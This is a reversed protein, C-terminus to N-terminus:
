FRLSLGGGICWVKKKLDVHPYVGDIVNGIFLYEQYSLGDGSLNLREFGGVIYPEIIQGGIKITASASAGAGWRNGKMSSSFGRITYVPPGAPYLSFDNNQTVQGYFANLGGNLTVASSVTKECAAKFSIRNETIKPYGSHEYRYWYIPYPIERYMFAFDTSNKFYTYYLGGAIKTGAYPTYDAGGGATFAMSKEQSSHKIYRFDWGGTGQGEAKRNVKKYDYKVLIPLSLSNNIPLRVWVDAGITHGNIEGDNDVGYYTSAAHYYNNKTSFPIGGRATFSTKASGIMTELSAKMSAEYYESDYPVGLHLLDYGGDSWGTLANTYIDIFTQNKEKKYDIKFEVGLKLNTSAPIGYLIRLAVDDLKNKQDFLLPPFMHSNGGWYVTDARDGRLSGDLGTYQFFVGVRGAGLPFAGGLLGGYRSERGAADYNADWLSFFPNAPDYAPDHVAYSYSFRDTTQVGYYMNSYFTFGKGVAIDAPHTLFDSEDEVLGYIDGMGAMRGQWAQASVVCLVIIVVLFIFISMSKKM